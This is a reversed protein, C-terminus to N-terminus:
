KPGFGPQYFIVFISQVDGGSGFMSLRGPMEVSSRSATPPDHGNAHTAEIKM